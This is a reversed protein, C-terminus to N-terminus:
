LFIFYFHLRRLAHVKLKFFRSLYKTIKPTVLRYNTWIDCLLVGSVGWPLIWRIEFLLEHGLFCFKRSNPGSKLFLVKQMGCNIKKCSFLVYRLYHCLAFGHCAFSGFVERIGTNWTVNLIWILFSCVLYIYFPVM